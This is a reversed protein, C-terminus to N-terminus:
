RTGAALFATGYFLEDWALDTLEQQMTARIADWPRRMIV